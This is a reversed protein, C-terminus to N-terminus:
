RRRDVQAFLLKTEIAEGELDDAREGMFHIETITM